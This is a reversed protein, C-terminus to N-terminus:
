KKLAWDLVPDRGAQADAWTQEVREDPEVVNPAGEPVFKYLRTSYSLM